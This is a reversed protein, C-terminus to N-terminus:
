PVTRSCPSEGFDRALAKEGVSIGRESAHLWQEAMKLRGETAQSAVYFSALFALAAVGVALNEGELLESFVEVLETVRADAEAQTPATM